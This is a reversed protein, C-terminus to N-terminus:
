KDNYEFKEICLSVELFVVLRETWLHAKLPTAESYPTSPNQSHSNQYYLLCFITLPQLWSSRHSLRRGTLVTFVSASSHIANSAKVTCRGTFVYCVSSFYHTSHHIKSHMFEEYLLLVNYSRTKLTWYIQNRIWVGDITVLYTTIHVGM